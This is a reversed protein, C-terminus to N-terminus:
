QLAWLAAATIVVALALAPRDSRCAGVAIVRDTHLVPAIAGASNANSAEHCDLDQALLKVCGSLAFEGL